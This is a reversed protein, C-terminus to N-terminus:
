GGTQPADAAPSFAPTGQRPVTEIATEEFTVFWYVGILMAVGLVTAIPFFILKRRRTQEPDLPRQDEGSAMAALELPHEEVMEHADIDGTFMSRNFTKIHVHYLHWTVISLVALLAEGGHAAKAAPIIQGPLFNTAAIPNWLLFGTLVMVVTGWIVAWYELKEGFTYRGMAPPQSAIGVNYGLAQFGDKVDRLGPLMSLRVRKVWIRYAVSLFHYGTLLILIVAAGRHIIRTLEIGGMAGIMGAGWWSEPWKQPLGSVGLLTFSIILVVHEIRQSLDFRPYRTRKPSTSQDVSDIDISNTEQTM